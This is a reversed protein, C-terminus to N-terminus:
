CGVFLIQQRLDIGSHGSYNRDPTRTRRALKFSSAIPYWARMVCNNLTLLTINQSKSYDYCHSKNSIAAKLLHIERHSENNHKKVVSPHHWATCIVSRVCDAVMAVLPHRMCTWCCKCETAICACVTLVWRSVQALICSKRLTSRWGQKTIKKHVHVFHVYWFVRRIHPLPRSFNGSESEM